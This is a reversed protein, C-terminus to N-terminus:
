APRLEGTQAEIRWGFLGMMRVLNYSAASLVFAMETRAMGFFKSKRQNGTCKMWGKPYFILLRNVIAEPVPM